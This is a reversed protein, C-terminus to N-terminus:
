TTKTAPIQEVAQEHQWAAVLTPITEPAVTTKELEATAQEATITGGVVGNKLKTLLATRASILPKADTSSAVKDANEATYGRAELDSVYEARTIQGAEYQTALQAETPQKSSSTSSTFSAATKAALTPEWGSWELISTCEDVTIAGSAVLPKLVFYSPWSYQNAAFDLNGWEPRVNSQKLATAFPEPVGAYDGGYSGGRALGKTVQHLAIPRGSTDFLLDTDAESMGHLATGAYMATDDIWGRLRGEVYKDATLIQRAQELIAAAWEPRTDGELIAQNFAGLTIIARFYASAAQQASMPLGIEGVMVRLRDEDIGAAAAEAIADLSAVPYKAVNSDGTDLTVALLGPDAVVSRVIGLAIQAPSLKVNELDTLGARYQEEFSLKDIGHDFDADTITGRRRMQLLEGFGVPAYAEALLDAFRGSDIGTQAAENNGWDQTQLREAVIKAAVEADLVRLPAVSWAEQAIAEAVPALAVAGAIGAAFGIAEGVTEGAISGLDDLIGSV